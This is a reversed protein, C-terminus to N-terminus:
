ITLVFSIAIQPPWFKASGMGERYRLRRISVGEVILPALDKKADVGITRTIKFTKKQTVLKASVSKADEIVHYNTVIINTDIFFASGLSITNGKADEAFFWQQRYPRRQL